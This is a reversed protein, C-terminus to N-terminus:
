DGETQMYSRISDNILKINQNTMFIDTGPAAALSKECLELSEKARIFSGQKGFDEEWKTTVERLKQVNKEQLEGKTAIDNEIAALTSLLQTKYLGHGETGPISCSSAYVGLVLVALAIMSLKLIKM